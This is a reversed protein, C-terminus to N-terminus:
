ECCSGLATSRFSACMQFLTCSSDEMCVQCRALNHQQLEEAITPAEVATLKSRDCSLMGDTCDTVNRRYNAVGICDNGIRHHM